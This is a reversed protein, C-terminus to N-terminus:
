QREERGKQQGGTREGPDVSGPRREAGSEIPLAQGFRTPQSQLWLLTLRDRASPLLAPRPGPVAAMVDSTADSHGWLGFAHGIEHLATAQLAEPRQDAGLQVTVRPELWWRGRRRVEHLELSARGHSARTRGTGERRLPPRRREILIQAAEPNEVRRVPIWPGWSNLAKEVAELWVREWRAAPGTTVAPQVWVCWRDLRAWGLPTTSLLHRYDQGGPAPPTQPPLLTPGLGARPRRGEVEACEAPDIPPPAMPAAASAPAEGLVAAALLLGLGLIEAM